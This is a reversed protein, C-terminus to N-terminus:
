SILVQSHFKPLDWGRIPPSETAFVALIRLSDLDSVDRRAASVLFALFCAISWIHGVYLQYKGTM